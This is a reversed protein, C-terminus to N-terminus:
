AAPTVGCDLVYKNYVWWWHDTFQPDEETVCTPQPFFKAMLAPVRLPDKKGWFQCVYKFCSEMDFVSEGCKCSALQSCYVRDECLGYLGGTEPPEAYGTTFGDGDLDLAGEDSKGARLLTLCYGVKEGETDCKCAMQCDAKIKKLEQQRLEEGIIKIQQSSQETVLRLVLMAVALLVFLVIFIEIAMSMGKGNVMM